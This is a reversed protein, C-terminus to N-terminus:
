SEEVKLKGVRGGDEIDDDVELDEGREVMRRAEWGSIGIM